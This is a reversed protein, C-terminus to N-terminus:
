IFNQRRSTPNQSGTGDTTLFGFNCFLGLIKHLNRGILFIHPLVVQRFRWMEAM